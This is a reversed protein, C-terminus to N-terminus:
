GQATCRPFAHTCYKRRNHFRLRLKSVKVAAGADAGLLFNGTRLEIIPILDLECNAEVERVNACMACQLDSSGALGPGSLVVSVDMKLDTGLGHAALPLPPPVRDSDSDRAQQWYRYCMRVYM